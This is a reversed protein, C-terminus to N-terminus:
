QFSKNKGPNLLKFSDIFVPISIVILFLILRAMFIETIGYGFQLLLFASLTIVVTGTVSYKIFRMKSQSILLQGFMTFTSYEVAISFLVVVLVSIQLLRVEAGILDLMFDGLLALMVFGSFLVGLSRILVSKFLANLDRLDAKGKQAAMKPFSSTLWINSFTIVLGVLQMTIGYSAVTKEDKFHNLLLIFSSMLLHYSLLMFFNKIIEPGVRFFLSKFYRAGPSKGYQAFCKISNLLSVRNLILSLSSSVLLAIAPALLSWSFLVVVMFIILNALSSFTENKQSTSVEGLGNLIASYLTSYLVFANAVVFFFWSTNLWPVQQADVHGSIWWLGVLFVVIVLIFLWSLYGRLITRLFLVDTDRNLMGVEAKSREAILRTIVRGFGAEAIAVFGFLAVFVYWAAVEEMSLYHVLLGITIMRSTLRAGLNIAVWKDHKDRFIKRLILEPM